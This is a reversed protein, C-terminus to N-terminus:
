QRRVNLKVACTLDVLACVCRCLTPRLDRLAPVCSPAQERLVSRCCAGPAFSGRRCWRNTAFFINCLLVKEGSNQERTDFQNSLQKLLNEFRTKGDIKIEM